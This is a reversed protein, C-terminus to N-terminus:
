ESVFGFFRPIISKECLGAGFVGPYVTPSQWDVKEDLLSTITSIDGRSFPQGLQPAGYIWASDTGGQICFLFLDSLQCILAQPFLLPNL